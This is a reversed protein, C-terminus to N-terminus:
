SNGKNWCKLKLMGQKQCQKERLLLGICQLSEYLKDYFLKKEKSDAQTWFGM